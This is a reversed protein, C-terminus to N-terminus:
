DRLGGTRRRVLTCLLQTADPAEEPAAGQAVHQAPLPAAPRGDRVIVRSGRKTNAGHQEVGPREPLLGGPGLAALVVSHELTDGRSGRGSAAVTSNDVYVWIDGVLLSGGSPGSGSSGSSAAMLGAPGNGAVLQVTPAAPTPVAQIGGTSVLLVDYYGAAMGKTKWNFVYQNASSDWRLTSSGAPTLAFPVAGPVSSGDANVVVGDLALSSALNTILNGAYDSLQFKLPITRGVGFARNLSAPQGFGSFQYYVNATQTVPASSTGSDDSATVQVTYVGPSAYSHTATLGSGNDATAPVIQIDRNLVTGDGWDIRDSFGAGQDVPSPSTAGLTFTLAQGVIASTPGSLSAAPAAVAVTFPVGSSTNSPGPNVVTVTASGEEALDTAPVTAQLQTASVFTTPLAAGNWDVASSSLFNSGNVTLTLGSSGEPASTTGLSSIAPVPNIVAQNLFVTVGGLGYRVVALDPSGDSNFDGAVAAVPNETQGGGYSAGLTGDGNGLTVSVGGDLVYPTDAATVIDLKGDGNFDAAQGLFIFATTKNPNPYFNNFIPAQFTGNGNGPLVDLGTTIGVAVDAQGRSTFEGVALGGEVAVGLTTVIPSAFTGDGNGLLVSVSQGGSGVLDLNGDHNMDAGAISNAGDPLNYTAGSRFTGNGNGLFVSVQGTDFQAAAFDLSGDHNFDGVVLSRPDGPVSYFGADSFTGDGNSLLVELNNPGDVNAGIVLDARGNGTFDGAAMSTTDFPTSGLYHVIPAGFTGDGHNLLVDFNPFPGAYGVPFCCTDSVAINLKGSGTFDGVAIGPSGGDGASYFAPPGFSLLTRMELAEPILRRARWSRGSNHHSGSNRHVSHHISRVLSIVM